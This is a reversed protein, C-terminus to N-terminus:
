VLLMSLQARHAEAYANYRKSIETTLGQESEVKTKDLQTFTRLISKATTEVYNRKEATHTNCVFNLLYELFDRVCDMKNIQAKILECLCQHQTEFSETHRATEYNRVAADCIAAFHQFNNPFTKLLHFKVEPQWEIGARPQFKMQDLFREVHRYVGYFCNDSFFYDVEGSLDHEIVAKVSLAFQQAARDSYRDAINNLCNYLYIMRGVTEINSKCVSDNGRIQALACSMRDLEVVFVQLGKDNHKGVNPEPLQFDCYESM